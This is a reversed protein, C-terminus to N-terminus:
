AEELSAPQRALSPIAGGDGQLSLGCGEFLCDRPGFPEEPLAYGHAKPQEAPSSDGGGGGPFSVGCGEFLCDRPGFPEEPLADGHANPQELHVALLSRMQM